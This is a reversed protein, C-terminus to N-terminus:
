QERQSPEVARVVRKKEVKMVLFRLRRKIEKQPTIAPSILMYTNRKRRGGKDQHAM